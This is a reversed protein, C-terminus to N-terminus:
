PRGGRDSLALAGRLFEVQDGLVRTLWPEDYLAFHGCAYRLVTADPARRAAELVPEVPTTGDDDALQLLVPCGVRGLDLAPRYRPVDLLFRAAVRNEWLEGARGADSRSRVEDATMVALEGPRGALGVYLPHGGRAARWRDRLSALALRATHRLDDQAGARGDAFPAQAVVAAIREDRAALHQVHGGSFSTGWLAVRDPAVAPDRRAHDIVARWDAHQGSIDLVQRPWGPSRGFSRHDFTFCVAGAEAFAEAYPLLDPDRVGGLGHALVVAARGDVERDGADHRVGVVRGDGVSTEFPSVRM